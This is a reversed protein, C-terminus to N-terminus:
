RGDPEGPQINNKPKLKRVGLLDNAKKRIEQRGIEEQETSYRDFNRISMTLRFLYPTGALLKGENQVRGESAVLRADVYQKLIDHRDTDRYPKPIMDIYKSLEQDYYRLLGVSITPEQRIPKIEKFISALINSEKEIRYKKNFKYEAAQDMYDKLGENLYQPPLKEYTDVIYQKLKDIIEYERREMHQRENEVIDKKTLNDLEEKTFTSRRIETRGKQRTTQMFDVGDRTCRWGMKELKAIYIEPNLSKLTMYVTSKKLFDAVIPRAAEFNGTREASTALIIKYRQTKEKINERPVEYEITLYDQKNSTYCNVAVNNAYETSYPVYYWKPSEKEEVKRLYEVTKMGDKPIMTDLIGSFSHQDM